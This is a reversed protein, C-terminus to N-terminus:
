RIVASYIVFSLFIVLIVVLVWTLARRGRAVNPGYGRSQLSPSPKASVPKVPTSPSADGPRARQAENYLRDAERRVLESKIKARDDASTEKQTLLRTLQEKSMKTLNQPKLEM